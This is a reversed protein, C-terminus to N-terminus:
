YQKNGQHVSTGPASALLKPKLGGKIGCLVTVRNATSKVFPGLFILSHLLEPICTAVQIHERVPSFVFATKKFMQMAFQCLPPYFPIRVMQGKRFVLPNNDIKAM